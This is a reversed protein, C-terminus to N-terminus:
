PPASAAAAAEPRTPQRQMLETLLAQGAPADIRTLAGAMRLLPDYAPRFDPSSRLVLLLPERVQALMQRVDAAPQVGRGLDIFRDRALRYAALRPPWGAAAPAVVVEDAAVSM